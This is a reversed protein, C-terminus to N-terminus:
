TPSTLNNVAEHTPPNWRKNRCDRRPKPMFLVPSFIQSYGRGYKVMKLAPPTNMMYHTLGVSNTQGLWRSFYPM